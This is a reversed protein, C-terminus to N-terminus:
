GLSKKSENNSGGSDTKIDYFDIREGIAPKKISTILSMLNILEFKSVVGDIDRVRLKVFDTNTLIVNVNWVVELDKRSVIAIIKQLGLLIERKNLEARIIDIVRDVDLMVEGLPELKKEVLQESIKHNGLLDFSAIKKNSPIYYDLSRQSAGDNQLDIIFFGIGLYSDPNSKVFEGFGSTEEIAVRMQEISMFFM